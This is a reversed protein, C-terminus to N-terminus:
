KGETHKRILEICTRFDEPTIWKSKIPSTHKKPKFQVPWNGEKMGPDQSLKKKAQWDDDAAILVQRERLIHNEPFEVAYIM